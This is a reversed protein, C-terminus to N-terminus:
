FFADSRMVPPHSGGHPQQFKFESGKSSCDTSKGASGDQWGQNKKNKQKNKSVPNRQTTRATQSDQFECQLGYVLSAEFNVQRQRGLAPILPTHWWARSQNPRKFSLKETYCKATRSSM